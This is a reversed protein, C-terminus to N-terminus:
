QITHICAFRVLLYHLILRLLLNPIELIIKHHRICLLLQTKKVIM